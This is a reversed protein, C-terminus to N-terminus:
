KLFGIVFNVIAAALACVVLGILAYVITNKASQLKNADGGSTMYKYGGIVIYTVAVLSGIAIVSNLIVQIPGSLQDSNGNIDTYSLDALFTLIEKM